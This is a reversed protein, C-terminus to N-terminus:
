ILRVFYPSSNLEDWVKIMLMMSNGGEVECNEDFNLNKEKKNKMKELSKTHKM